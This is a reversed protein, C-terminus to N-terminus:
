CGLSMIFALTKDVPQRYDEPSAVVKRKSKKEALWAACSEALAEKTLVLRGVVARTSAGRAGDAGRNGADGLPGADGPKSAIDDPAPSSVSPLSSISSLPSSPSHSLTPPQLGSQLSADSEASSRAQAQSKSRATATSPSTPSPPPIDSQIAGSTTEPQARHYANYTRLADYLANIDRPPKLLKWIGREVLAWTKNKHTPSHFVTALSTTKEYRAPCNRGIWDRVIPCTVPGGSEVMCLIILQALTM